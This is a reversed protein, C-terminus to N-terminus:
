NYLSLDLKDILYQRDPFGQPLFGRFWREGIKKFVYAGNRLVQVPGAYLECRMDHREGDMVLYSTEGPPILALADLGQETRVYARPVMGRITRVHEQNDIVCRVHLNPTDNIIRFRFYNGEWYAPPRNFGVQPSPVPVNFRYSPYAANSYGRESGAPPPSITGMCGSAAFAVIVIFVFLIFYSITYARIKDTM